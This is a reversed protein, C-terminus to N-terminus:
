EELSDYDIYDPQEDHHKIPKKLYQQARNNSEIKSFEQYNQLVRELADIVSLKRTDRIESKLYEEFDDM